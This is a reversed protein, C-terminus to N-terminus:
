WRLHVSQLKVGIIVKCPMWSEVSSREVIGFQNYKNQIATQIQTNFLLAAPIDANRPDWLSYKDLTWLRGPISADTFTWGQGRMMMPLRPLLMIIMTRLEENDLAFTHDDDRGASVNYYIAVATENDHNDGNGAVYWHASMSTIITKMLKTLVLMLFKRFAVDLTHTHAPPRGGWSLM